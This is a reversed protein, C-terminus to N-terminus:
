FIPAYNFSQPQSSNQSHPFLYHCLLSPLGCLYFKAGHKGLLSLLCFIHHFIAGEVFQVNQRSLVEVAVGCDVLFCVVGLNSCAMAQPCAKHSPPM